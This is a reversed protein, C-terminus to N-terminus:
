VHARGIEPVCYWVSEGDRLELAKQQSENLTYQLKM